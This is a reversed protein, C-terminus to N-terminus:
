WTPVRQSSHYSPRHRIASCSLNTHLINRHTCWTQYLHSVLFYAVIIFRHEDHTMISSKATTYSPSHWLPPSNPSTIRTALSARLHSTAINLTSLTTPSAEHTLSSMSISAIHHQDLHRPSLPVPVAQLSVPAKQLHFSALKARPLNVEHTHCRTDIDLLRTTGPPSLPSLSSLPLSDRTRNSLAGPFLSPCHQEHVVFPAPPKMEDITAM